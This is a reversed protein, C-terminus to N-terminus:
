FALEGNIEIVDSNFYNCDNIDTWITGNFKAEFFGNRKKIKINYWRNIEVVM